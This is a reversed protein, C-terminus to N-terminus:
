FIFLMNLAQVAFIIGFHLMELNYVVTIICIDWCKDPFELSVDM